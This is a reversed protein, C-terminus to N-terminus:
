QGLAAKLQRHFDNIGSVGESVPVQRELFARKVRQAGHKYYEAFTDVAGDGRLVPWETLYEPLDRQALNTFSSIIRPAERAVGVEFPVWWSGRTNPTMLALLNTCEQIRSVILATIDSSKTQRDLDDLYCKIGHKQTLRDHVRRATVDNATRHSIFVPM